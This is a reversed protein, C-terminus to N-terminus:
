PTARKTETVLLSLDPLKPSLKISKLQQLEHRVTSAHAPPLVKLIRSLTNQYLLDQQTAVAFQAQSFLLHLQLILYDRQVDTLLPKVTDEHHQIIVLQHMTGVFKRWVSQEPKETSAPKRRAAISAHYSAVQAVQADLSALQNLLKTTNVPTMTQYSAIAKTLQQKLPTTATATLPRLQTAAAQLLSLAVLPRHVFHANVQALEINYKAAALHWQDNAHDQQQKWQQWTVQVADQQKQLLNTKENLKNNTQQLAHFLGISAVVAVASLLGCIPMFLKVTKSHTKKSTPESM